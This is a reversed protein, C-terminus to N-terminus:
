ILVVSFESKRSHTAKNGGFLRTGQWSPRLFEACPRACLPTCGLSVSLKAEKPGKKLAHLTFCHSLSGLFAGPGPSCTAEGAM